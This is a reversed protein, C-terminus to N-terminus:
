FNSPKNYEPRFSLLNQVKILETPTFGTYKKVTKIFHSQDSYNYKEVYYQWDPNKIKHFEEVAAKYKRLGLFAKPTLGTENKVYRELSSRSYGTKELIHSLNQDFPLDFMMEAIFGSFSKNLKKLFFADLVDCCVKAEKNRLERELTNVEAGFFEELDCISNHMLQKSSFNTFPLLSSLSRPKFQVLIFQKLHQSDFLFNSDLHSALMSKNTQYTKGLYTYSLYGDLILIIEPRIGPYGYVKSTSLFLDSSKKVMWYHSIHNELEKAQPFRKM